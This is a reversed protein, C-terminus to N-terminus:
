VITGSVVTFPFPFFNCISCGRRKVLRLDEDISFDKYIFILDNCMINLGDKKLIVQYIPSLEYKVSQFRGLVILSWDSIDIKINVLNM